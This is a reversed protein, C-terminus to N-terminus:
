LVGFHRFRKRNFNGMQSFKENFTTRIDLETQKAFLNGFFVEVIAIDKEVRTQCTKDTPYQFKYPDFLIGKEISEIMSFFKVMRTDFVFNNLYSYIKKYVPNQSKDQCIEQPKLKEKIVYFKYEISSCDPQCKICKKLNNGDELFHRFCANGIGICIKSQQDNPQNWPICDCERQALMWLCEFLCGLTLKM